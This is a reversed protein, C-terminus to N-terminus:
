PIRVREGVLEGARSVGGRPLGRAVLEGDRLYECFRWPIGEGFVADENAQLHLSLHPEPTVATPASAGVEGLVDGAAVSEGVSVRISNQRLRALFLYEGDEVRLVVHNGFPHAPRVAGPDLDPDGDRVAVVEGDAPAAVARGFVFYDTCKTGDGSHTKGDRTEVLDLGWRRAPFLTALRNEQELEGGWFVTWEGEGPLRFCTSSVAKEYPSPYPIRTNATGFVVALMVFARLRKRQLIPRRLTSRVAGWILLVMAAIAFVFPGFLFVQVPLRGGPRMGLYLIAAIYLAFLVNSLVAWLEMGSSQKSESAISAELVSVPDARDVPEDAVPEDVRAEERAKKRARKGRSM